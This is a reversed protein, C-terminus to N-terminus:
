NYFEIEPFIIKLEEMTVEGDNIEIYLDNDVFYETQEDMTNGEADEFTQFTLRSDEFIWGKKVKEFDIYNKELIELVQKRITKPELDSIIIQKSFLSYGQINKGVEGSEQDYEQVTKTLQVKLVNVSKQM